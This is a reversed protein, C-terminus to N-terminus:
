HCTDLMAQMASRTPAMLLIDDCFGVVGMYVGQIHCGLGLKRLQLLLDNAYVSFCTPSLVSGQRTGNTVGFRGSISNGWKTWAYQDEYVVILTRVVIPPLDRDLLKSFLVSFLCKDFSKSFDLLTIIPNSGRRLYHGVVETVLWSCETTSTGAKYGFQLSDSSLLHGWILLIDKDFLKLIIAPFSNACAPDKLSSKLLPLFACALLSKTM